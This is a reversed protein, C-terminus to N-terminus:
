LLLSMNREWQILGVTALSMTCSFGLNFALFCPTSWQCVPCCFPSSYFPCWSPSIRRSHRQWPLVTHGYHTSHRREPCLQKELCVKWSSCHKSRQNHSIIYRRWNYCWIKLEGENGGEWCQGAMMQRLVWNCPISINIFCPSFLVFDSIAFSYDTLLPVHTGPSTLAVSHRPPRLCLSPSVPLNLPPPSRHWTDNQQTPLM